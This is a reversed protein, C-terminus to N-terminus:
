ALAVFIDTRLKDQPVSDPDDIYVEWTPAGLELGHQQLWGMMAQYSEGLRTYPGTHIFNVVRGAPTMGAKIGGEAKKADEASVFFGARFEVTDPDFSYYASLAPGTLAMGHSQIFDMVDEFAKGMAKSIAEPQMACRCEAYVYPEEHAEIIKYETM